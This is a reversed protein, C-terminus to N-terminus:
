LDFIIALMENPTVNEFPWLKLGDIVWSIKSVDISSGQHRTYTWMDIFKGLTHDSGEWLKNEIISRAFHAGRVV